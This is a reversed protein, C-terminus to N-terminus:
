DADAFIGELLEITQTSGLEAKGFGPVAGAQIAREQADAYNSVLMVPIKSVTSAKKVSKVFEIGSDGDADFIRNVLILDFPGNSAMSMAEEASDASAVQAGFQQEFFRKISGSDAMCQGVSLVRKAM